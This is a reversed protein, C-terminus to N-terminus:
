SRRRVQSSLGPPGYWRPSRSICLSQPYFPSTSSNYLTAICKKQTVKM